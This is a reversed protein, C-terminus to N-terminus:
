ECVLKIPHEAILVIIKKLHLNQCSFLRAPKRVYNILINLVTQMLCKVFKLLWGPVKKSFLLVRLLNIKWVTLKIRRLSSDPLVFRADWYAPFQSFNLNESWDLSKSQFITLENIIGGVRKHIQWRCWNYTKSRKNFCRGGIFQSLLNRQHSLVLKPSKLFQDPQGYAPVRGTVFRHQKPCTLYYQCKPALVTSPPPPM